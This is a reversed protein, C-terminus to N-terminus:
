QVAVRGTIGSLVVSRSLFGFNLDISLKELLSTEPDRCWPAGTNDFWVESSSNCAGRYLTAVSTSDLAAFSVSDLEIDFLQKSVPHYVDYVATPPSTGTDLRFVRIRRAAADHSFGHEQETRLTETRAFRIAAAIQEAAVNLSEEENAPSRPIAIAAIIALLTIVIILEVLTYGRNGRLGM